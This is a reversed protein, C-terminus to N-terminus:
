SPKCENPITKIITQVRQDDDRRITTPLMKVIAKVWRSDDERGGAGMAIAQGVWLTEPPSNLGATENPIINTPAM